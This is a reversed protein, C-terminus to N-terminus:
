VAPNSARDTNFGTTMFHSHHEPRAQQGCGMISMKRNQQPLSANKEYSSCSNGQPEGKRLTEKSASVVNQLRMKEEVIQGVTTVLVQAKASGSKMSHTSSAGSGQTQTAPGPAQVTQLSEAEARDKNHLMSQGFKTARTGTSSKSPAPKEKALLLSKSGMTDRAEWVQSSTILRGVGKGGAFRDTKGGPKPKEFSERKKPPGFKSSKMNEPDELKSIRPDKEEQSMRDKRLLDFKGQSASESSALVGQSNSPSKHSALINERHPIDLFTHQLDEGTTFDRLLVGNAPDQTKNKTDEQTALCSDGTDQVASIRPMHLIRKSGLSKFSRLHMNLNQSTSMVSAGKTLARDFPKKQETEMTQKIDRARPYLSGVTMEWASLRHSPDGPEAVGREQKQYRDMGSIASPGLSGRGPRPVTDAPRARGETGLLHPQSSYSSEHGCPAAQSPGGSDGSVTMVPYKFSRGTLPGRTQLVEIVAKVMVGPLKQSVEGLLSRSQCTSDAKSNAPASSSSAPWPLLSAQSKKLKFARIVEIIKLALRWRHRVWLRKMHTELRQQAGPHLLSFDQTGRACEQGKLSPKNGTEMPAHSIGPRDCAHQATLTSHHVGEPIRGGTQEVKGRVCVQMSDQPNKEPSGASENLSDSRLLGERNRQLAGQSMSQLDNEPSIELGKAQVKADKGLDNSSYRGVQSVKPSGSRTKGSIQRSDEIMSIQCPECNHKAQRTGPARERDLSLHVQPLPGRM